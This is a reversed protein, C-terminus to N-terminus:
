RLQRRRVGLELPDLRLEDVRPGGVHSGCGVHQADVLDAIRLSDKVPVLPVLCRKPSLPTGDVLHSAEMRGAHLAVKPHRLRLARAVLAGAGDARDGSRGELQGVSPASAKCRGEAEQAVSPAEVERPRRGLAVRVSGLALARTGPPLISDHHPAM